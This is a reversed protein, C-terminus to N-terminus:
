DNLEFLLYQNTTRPANEEPGIGMKSTNISRGARSEMIPNEVTIKNVLTCLMTLNGEELRYLSNMILLHLISKM